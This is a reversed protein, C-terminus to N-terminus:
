PKEGGVVNGSDLDEVWTWQEGDVVKCRARYKHAAEAEFEISENYGYLGATAVNWGHYCTIYVKHTGPLLEIREHGFAGFDDHDVGIIAAKDYRLSGWYSDQIVAIEEKSKAEGSYSQHACGVVLM